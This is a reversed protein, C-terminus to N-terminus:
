NIYKIVLKSFFPDYSSILFILKKYLLLQSWQLECSFPIISFNMSKMSWSNSTSDYTSPLIVINQTM